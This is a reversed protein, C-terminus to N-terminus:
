LYDGGSSWYAYSVTTGYFRIRPGMVAVKIDLDRTCPDKRVRVEVPGSLAGMSVLDAFTTELHNQIVNLSAGIRNVRLYMMVKDVTQRVTPLDEDKEGLTTLAAAVALAQEEETM